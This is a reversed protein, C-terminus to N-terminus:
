LALRYIAKAGAWPVFSRDDEPLSEHAGLVLAGCPAMRKTLRALTEKQLALDYYTFVLNRCLILHYRYDPLGDRVDSSQFYVDERFADKLVFRAGIKRFAAERWDEPLDKLSGCSYTGRRARELM